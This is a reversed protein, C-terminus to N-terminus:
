LCSRVARASDNAGLVLQRPLPLFLGQHVSIKYDRHSAVAGHLDDFHVVLTSFTSNLARSRWFFTAYLKM